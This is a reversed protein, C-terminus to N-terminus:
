TRLVSQAVKGLGFHVRETGAGLPSQVTETVPRPGPPPLWVKVRLTGGLTGAANVARALPARCIAKVQVLPM